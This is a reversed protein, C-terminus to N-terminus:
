VGAEPGSPATVSSAAAGGGAGAADGAAVAGRGSKSAARAILVAVVVILAAGIIVGIVIGAIGGQTLTSSSSTTTAQGALNVYVPTLSSPFGSSMTRWSYRVPQLAAASPLGSAFSLQLSVVNDQKFTLASGAVFSAFPNSPTYAGCSVTVTIPQNVMSGPCRPDWVSLTFVYAGTVTPVFTAYLPSELNAVHMSAYQISLTEATYSSLDLPVWPHGAPASTLNWFTRIYRSPTPANVAIGAPLLRIPTWNTANAVVTRTANSVDFTLNGVCTVTLSFPTTVNRTPVVAPASAYTTAPCFDQVQLYGAYTGAVDPLFWATM